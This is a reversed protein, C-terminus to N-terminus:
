KKKKFFSLSYHFMFGIVLAPVISSNIEVDFCKKLCILVGFGVFGILISGASINKIFRLLDKQIANAYKLVKDGDINNNKDVIKEYQKVFKEWAMKEKELIIQGTTIIDFLYNVKVNDGEVNYNITVTNKWNLPNFTIFNTFINGKKFEQYKGSDEIIKYKNELFYKKTMKMVTRLSLKTKFEGQINM